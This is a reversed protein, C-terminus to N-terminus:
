TKKLASTRTRLKCLQISFRSDDTSDFRVSGVFIRIETSAAMCADLTRVEVTQIKVGALIAVSLPSYLTQGRRLPASSLRSKLVIDGFVVRSGLGIEDRNSIDEL